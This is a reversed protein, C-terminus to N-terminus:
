MRVIMIERVDELKNIANIYKHKKIMRLSKKLVPIVDSTHLNAAGLVSIADKIQEKALRANIKRHKRKGIRSTYELLQIASRINEDANLVRLFAAVNVLQSGNLGVIPSLVEGNRLHRQSTYFAIMGEVTDMQNSHFFPGTDAAEIVPPDNFLSTGHGFGDDFPMSEGYIIDGPQDLLEEVRPAFSRNSSEFAASTVGPPFDFDPDTNAGGNFHCANCPLGNAMGEGM